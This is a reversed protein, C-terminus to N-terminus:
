RALEMARGREPTTEAIEDPEVDLLAAIQAADAVGSGPGETARDLMWRAVRLREARSAEALGDGLGAGRAVRAADAPEQPRGAARAADAPEKPRAPAEAPEQPPLLVLQGGSAEQPPQELTPPQQQTTADDRSRATKIGNVIYTAARTAAASAAHIVAPGDTSRLDQAWHKLYAAHNAVPEHELSLTNCVVVAGLEAVLEERARAGDAVANDISEFFPRSLRSPHGTWHVHEHAVTSAYGGATHFAEPVPTHITDSNPSYYARGGGDHRWNAGIAAFTETISQHDWEPTTFEAFREDRPIEGQVQEANFVTHVRMGWRPRNDCLSGRDCDPDKCCRHEFARVIYVGHNGRQVQCDATQWQRYTAWAGTPYGLEIAAVALVWRNIGSYVAGSVPNHPVSAGLTNWSKTWQGPDGEIADAMAAAIQAGVAEVRDHRTAM